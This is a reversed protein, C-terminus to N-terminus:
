LKYIKKLIKKIQLDNTTAFIDFLIFKLVDKYHQYGQENGIKKFTMDSLFILESRDISSISIFAKAKKIQTNLILFNIDRKKQPWIKDPADENIREALGVNDKFIFSNKSSNNKRLIINMNIKSNKIELNNIIILNKLLSKIEFSISVLEAEFLYDYQFEDSNKIKINHIQVLNPYNIDIKDYTIEKEVWNSFKNAYYVTILKKHFILILIIILFFIKLSKIM